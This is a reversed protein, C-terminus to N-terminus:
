RGSLVRRLCTGTRTGSYPHVQGPKLSVAHIVFSGDQRPIASYAGGNLVVRVSDLPLDACWCRLLLVAPQRATCYARPHTVRLSVQGSNVM